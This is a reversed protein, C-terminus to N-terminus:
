TEGRRRWGFLGRREYGFPYQTAMQRARTLVYATGAFALLIVLDVIFYHLSLLTGGFLAYHFFRAACALLVAYFVMVWRSEWGLAVARGSMFASGGAMFLTVLLFGALSEEWILGM